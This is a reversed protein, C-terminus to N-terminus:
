HSDKKCFYQQYFALFLLSELLDTISGVLANDGNLKKVYASLFDEISRIM